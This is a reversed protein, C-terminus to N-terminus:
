RSKKMRTKPKWQYRRQRFIFNICHQILEIMLSLVQINSKPGGHVSWHSLTRFKCAVRFSLAFGWSTLLHSFLPPLSRKQGGRRDAIINRAVGKVGPQNSPAPGPSPPLGQPLQKPERGYVRRAGSEGNSWAAQHARGPKCAANPCGQGFTENRQAVGARILGQPLVTAGESSAGELTAGRV